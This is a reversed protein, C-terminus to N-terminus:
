RVKDDVASVTQKKPRGGKNKAEATPREEDLMCGIPDLEISPDLVRIERLIRRALQMNDSPILIRGDPEAKAVVLEKKYVRRQRGTSEDIEYESVMDTKQHLYASQLVLRHVEPLKDKATALIKAFEENRAFDLVVYNPRNGVIIFFPIKPLAM